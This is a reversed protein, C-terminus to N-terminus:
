AMDGICAEFVREVAELCSKCYAYAESKQPLVEETRMTHLHRDLTYVNADGAFRRWDRVTRQITNYATGFHSPEVQRVLYFFDKVSAGKRAFGRKIGVEYLSTLFLSARVKGVSPLSFGDGDYTKDFVCRLTALFVRESAEPLLYGSKSRSKPRELCAKPAGELSLEEILGLIERMQSLLAQQAEFVERYAPNLVDIEMLHRQAEKNLRQLSALSDTVGRGM